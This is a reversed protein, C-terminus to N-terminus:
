SVNQRQVRQTVDIWGQAREKSAKEANYDRLVKKRLAMGIKQCYEPHALAHLIKESVDRPDNVECLLREAKGTLLDVAGAFRTAVIPKASLAAEHLVMCTGEHHSTIAFLDAAAYYAPVDNFPVLGALQVKDHLGLEDILRRLSQEEPGGGVILFQVDPTEEVVRAAARTLVDLRKQKALRGVFLVLRERDAELHRRRVKQVEEQSVQEYPAADVYFPVRYVRDGFQSRMKRVEYDTSVRIADACRLVLKALSVGLGNKLPREKVFSPNAIIDSMVSVDLPIGHRWSLWAGVAGTYFPDACTICDIANQEIVETGIRVANGVYQLKNSAGAPYFRINDQEEPNEAQDQSVVFYRDLHKAYDRQRQLAGSFKAEELPLMGGLSLSLVSIGM